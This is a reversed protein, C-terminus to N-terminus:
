HFHGCLAARRVSAAGAAAVMVVAAVVVAVAVFGAVAVALNGAALGGAVMAQGGSALGVALGGTVAVRSALGSAVSGGAMGGGDESTGGDAAAESQARHPPTTAETPRTTARPTTTTQPQSPAQSPPQLQADCWAALIQPCSDLASVPEWTSDDEPWGKWKVLYHLVGGKRRRQALIGEVEYEEEEMVGVKCRGRHGDERVCGEKM